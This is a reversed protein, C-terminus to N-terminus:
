KMRAYREAEAQLGLQRCCIELRKCISGDKLYNADATQLTTEFEIKARACGGIAMYVIGLEDHARFELSPPLGLNLADLLYPKAKSYEGACVYCHGLYFAVGEKYERPSQIGELIPMAEKWRNLDALIFARRIQIAEYFDSSHLDKPTLNHKNSAAELRHKKIAAEFTKLVAELNEGRLWLLTAAEYDLFLELAAVREDAASKPHPYGEILARAESLKSTAAEVQGSMELTNAAYLLAGAKDLPDAESEALQIFEHCAETLKGEDRLECANLFKPEDM